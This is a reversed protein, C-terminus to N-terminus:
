RRSIRRTTKLAERGKLSMQIGDTGIPDEDIIEPAQVHELDEFGSILGEAKEGYFSVPCPVYFMTRGEGDVYNAEEPWIMPGAFMELDRLNQDKPTVDGKSLDVKYGNQILLVASNQMINLRFSRVRDRNDSQRIMM